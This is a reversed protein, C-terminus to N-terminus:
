AKTAKRRSTTTLSAARYEDIVPGFVRDPSAETTVYEFARDVTAASDASFDFAGVLSKAFEEDSAAADVATGKGSGLLGVLGGTAAGVVPRKRAFAELVVLGLGEWKSTILLGDAEDLERAIDDSEGAFVVPAGLRVVEALADDRLPGSGLWRGEVPRIKAAAAVIRVFRVPDKQEAVRGIGLVRWPRDPSGEERDAPATTSVNAPTGGVVVVREAPAGYVSVVMEAVQDSVAFIKQSLFSLRTPGQNPLINHAHEFVPIGLMRGVILSSLADRRQHAHLVVPKVRRALLFLQLVEGPFGLKWKEVFTAGPGERGALPGDAAVLYSQIDREASYASLMLVVRQLGGSNMTNFVHIVKM